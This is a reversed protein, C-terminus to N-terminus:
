LFFLAAAILILLFVVNYGTFVLMYRGKQAGPEGAYFRYSIVSALSAILTGLGGINVGFLLPRIQSTFGSLLIAAPVNSICQSFLIGLLLERGQIFTNLISSVAPIQQLNGIFVFFCVFTLLLKYDVKGFLKRNVPLIALIIICLMVPYPILHLVCGICVCFLALYFLLYPLSLSSPQTHSSTTHDAPANCSSTNDSISIVSISNSHISDTRSVSLSEKPLLFVAGLLLVASLLTLPLMTMLFDGIELSFRSYLYLNQPNGIPTFMSGLNAAITQLVVVPILLRSQGAMNLLLIAFPVFTILAVDNTILMSAFFCLFVLLLALGRSTKVGSLLAHGLAHFTGMHQLGAVVLMLCFLLALTRWDLYEAYQMSPPVFFASLIALLFAACLIAEEKAFSILSALVNKKM